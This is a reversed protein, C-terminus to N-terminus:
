DGNDNITKNVEKSKTTMMKDKIDKQDHSDNNDKQIMKSTLKVSRKIKNKSKSLKIKSDNQIFAKNKIPSHIGQMNLKVLNM